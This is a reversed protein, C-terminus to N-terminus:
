HPINWHSFFWCIFFQFLRNLIEFFLGSRALVVGFAKLVFRAHRFINKLGEALWRKDKIRVMLYQSGITGCDLDGVSWFLIKDASFTILKEM